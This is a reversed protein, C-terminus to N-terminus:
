CIITVPGMGFPTPGKKTDEAKKQWDIMSIIRPLRPMIELRKYRNEQEQLFM